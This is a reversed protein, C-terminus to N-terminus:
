GEVIGCYSLRYLVDNTIIPDRTRIVSAAGVLKRDTRYSGIINRMRPRLEGRRPQSQPIMRGLPALVSSGAGDLRFQRFTITSLPLMRACYVRSSGIACARITSNEYAVNRGWM